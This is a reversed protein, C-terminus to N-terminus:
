DGGPFVARLITFEFFENGFTQDLVDRIELGFDLVDGVFFDILQEFLAFFVGILDGVLFEEFDLFGDAQALNRTLVSM